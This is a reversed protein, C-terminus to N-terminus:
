ANILLYNLGFLASGAFQFAIATRHKKQQYSLVNFAMAVLGIMQAAVEIREM